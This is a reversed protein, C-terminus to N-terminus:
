SGSETRLCGALQDSPVNQALAEHSAVIDQARLAARAEQQEQWQQFPRWEIDAATLLTIAM